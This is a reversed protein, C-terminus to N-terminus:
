SFLGQLLPSVVGLRSSALKRQQDEAQSMQQLGSLALAQKAQLQQLEADSNAKSAAADFGAANISGASDLIDQQNQGYAAYPSRMRLGALADARQQQSYPLPPNFSSDYTIVTDGV